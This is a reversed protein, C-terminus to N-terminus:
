GAHGPAFCDFTAQEPLPNEPDVKGRLWSIAIGTRFACVFGFFRNEQAITLYFAILVYSVIDEPSPQQLFWLCAVGIGTQL